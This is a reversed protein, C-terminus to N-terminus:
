KQNFPSALRPPLPAKCRGHIGVVPDRAEHGGLPLVRQLSRLAVMGGGCRGVMTGMMERRKIRDRKLQRHGSQARSHHPDAKPERNPARPDQGTLNKHDARNENSEYERQHAGSFPEM